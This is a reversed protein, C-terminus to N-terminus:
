KTCVCFYLVPTPHERRVRAPVLMDFLIALPYVLARIFNFGFYPSLITMAASGREGVREIDIDRFGNKRLLRELGEHTYRIYDHPEPMENAILPSSLFLRGGSKLIRFIERLLKDADDAIYLANFLLVANYSSDGFPLPENFDIVEVGESAVYNTRTVEANVPLLGLYSPNRGGALDLVRGSLGACRILVQENFLIRGISKGSLAGRILHMLSM